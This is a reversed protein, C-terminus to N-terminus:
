VGSGDRPESGPAPAPAPAPAIGECLWYGVPFAPDRLDDEVCACRGGTSSAFACTAGIERCEVRDGAAGLSDPCYTVPSPAPRECVLHGRSSVTGDERPESATAGDAVCRCATGDDLACVPISLDCSTDRTPPVSADFCSPVTPPERRECVWRGALRDTTGDARTDDPAAACYCVSGDALECRADTSSLDCGAGPALDRACTSPPPPPVECSWVFRGRADSGDARDTERCVCRGGEPLVCADITTSDPACAAGPAIDAACLTVPPVPAPSPACRLRGTAGDASPECRCAVSFDEPTACRGAEDLRPDCAAGERAETACVGLDAHLADRATGRGVPEGAACAGLALSALGGVLGLTRTWTGHNLSTM